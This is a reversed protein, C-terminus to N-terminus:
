MTFFEEISVVSIGLKKHHETSGVAGESLNTKKKAWTIVGTEKLTMNQHWKIYLSKEGLYKVMKNFDEENKVVVSLGNKM